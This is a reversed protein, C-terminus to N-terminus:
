SKRWFDSWKLRGKLFIALGLVMVFLAVGTGLLNRQSHVLLGFLIMQLAIAVPAIRLINSWPIKGWLARLQVLQPQALLSKTGNAVSRMLVSSYMDVALPDQPQMAKLDQYKKLAFPLAQLDECRNVFAMHKTINNYDQLLEQWMRLLSPLSGAHVKQAKALVVGCRYCELARAPNVTACKPCTLFDQGVSPKLRAQLKQAQPLALAKTVIHGSDLPPCDFSFETACQECEFHPNRSQIDAPDTVYLKFCHPCRFQWQTPV